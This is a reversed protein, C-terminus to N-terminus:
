TKLESFVKVAANLATKESCKGDIHVRIEGSTEFEAFHIAEIIKQQEEIRALTREQQREFERSAKGSLREAFDKRNALERQLGKREEELKERIQNKQNEDQTQFLEDNAKKELDQIYQHATDIDSQHHAAFLVGITNADSFMVTERPVLRNLLNRKLTRRAFFHSIQRYLKKM